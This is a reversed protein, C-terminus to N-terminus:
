HLSFVAPVTLDVRQGPIEPPVPPFPQARQIMDLAERDLEAYGSGRVVHRGVVGGNRNLSVGVTVVGEEHRSQAGSPYRKARQLQLVVLERWSAVAARNGPIPAAAVPASHRQPQAAAPRPPPAPKREVRQVPQPPKSPPQVTVPAPALEAPPPPEIVEPEPPQPQMAEPEPLSQTTEPSVDLPALDLFIAPAEPLGATKEPAAWLYLALAAVHAAVVIVAALSWRRIEGAHFDGTFALATM